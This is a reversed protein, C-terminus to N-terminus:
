ALSSREPVTEAKAMSVHLRRAGKFPMRGHAYRFNDLILLDGLRWDMGTQHLDFANRIKQIDSAEIPSGDGYFAQRPLRDHGFVAMIQKHTTPNLTSEHFLHAQNFFIPRGTESRLAGQAVHSTVLADGSLWEVVMGNRDAVEQVDAKDQTQFATQWPIDVGRQFTRRYKVGKEAFPILTDGLTESVKDIDCITTQGGEEAVVLSHFAVYRPWSRMYAMECHLQITRPSPYETATLTKGVVKSRPTSWFADDLLEDDITKMAIEVSEDRLIQGRLLVAGHSALAQRAEAEWAGAALADDDAVAIHPILDAFDKLSM